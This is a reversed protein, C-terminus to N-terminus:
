IYTYAYIYINYVRCHGMRWFNAGAIQYQVGPVAVLWSYIYKDHIKLSTMNDASM